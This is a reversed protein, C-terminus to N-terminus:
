PQGNDVLCGAGRAVTLIALYFPTTAFKLNDIGTAPYDVRFIDKFFFDVFLYGDSDFLGIDNEENNIGYISSGVEVVM